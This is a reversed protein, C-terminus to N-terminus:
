LLDAKAIRDKAPYAGTFHQSIQNKVRLADLRTAFAGARLKYYPKSHEWDVNKLNPYLSKLKEMEREVKYRDTTAMVQLRWGSITLDSKNLQEFKKMMDGIPVDEVLTAQSFISGCVFVLLFSTLILPKRM